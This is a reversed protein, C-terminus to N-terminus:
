TSSDCVLLYQGNKAKVIEGKFGMDKDETFKIKKLRKLQQANPTKFYIIHGYIGNIGSTYESFGLLPVGYATANKLGIFVENYKYFDENVNLKRVIAPRMDNRYPQPTKAYNGKKASPHVDVVTMDKVENLQILNESLSNFVAHNTTCGDELSKFVPTWDAAYGVSSVMLGLASILIRM